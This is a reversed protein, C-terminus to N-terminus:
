YQLGMCSVSLIGVPRSFVIVPRSFVIRMGCLMGKHEDADLRYERPENVMMWMLGFSVARGPLTFLPSVTRSYKCQNMWPVLDDELSASPTKLSVLHPM